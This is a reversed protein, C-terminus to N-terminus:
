RADAALPEGDGGGFEIVIPESRQPGRPAPVDDPHLPLEIGPQPREREERERRLREIEEIMWSPIVTRMGAGGASLAGGGRALRRGESSPLLLPFATARIAGRAFTKRTETPRRGDFMGGQTPIAHM